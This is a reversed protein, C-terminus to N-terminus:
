LEVQSGKYNATTKRHEMYSVFTKTRRNVYANLWVKLRLEPLLEM